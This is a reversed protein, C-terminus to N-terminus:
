YEAVVVLGGVNDSSVTYGKAGFPITVSADAYGGEVRYIEYRLTGNEYVAIHPHEMLYEVYEELCFDMANMAAANGVGVYRYVKMNSLEIGTKYSKDVTDPYPFGQVPFRFVFGYKWCNNYIWRGQETEHLPTNSWDKDGSKYNYLYVSLGAQYDSTGPYSVTARVRETLQDGSYRSSLEEVRKNWNASQEEMTRYGYQIVIHDMDLGEARADKYMQMLAAVAVPQLPVSANETPLNTTKDDDARSTRNISVMMDDTLDAPMAHWRNILLLGGQLMDSRTVNTQAGASVPFQSLDVVDWGEGAPAPWQEAEKPATQSTLEAVAANYQTIRENNIRLVEEENQKARAALYNRTYVYGACALAALALLVLMWVILGRYVNRKKANAM